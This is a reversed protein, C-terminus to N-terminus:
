TFLSFIEVAFDFDFDVAQEFDSPYGQSTGQGHKIHSLDGWVVNM